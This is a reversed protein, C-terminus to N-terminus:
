PNEPLEPQAETTYWKSFQADGRLDEPKLQIADIGAVLDHRRIQGLVSIRTVRYVRDDYVLRDRVYQGHKVDMAALGALELGAVPVTVHLSDTWYLGGQMRDPNGEERILRIVPIRIPGTFVRGGSSPEDYVPHYASETRSYRYYEAWDGWVDQHDVMADDALGGEYVHDFRGRKRDLRSM